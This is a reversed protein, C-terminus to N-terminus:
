YYYWEDEESASLPSDKMFKRTDGVDISPAHQEIKEKDDEEPVVAKEAPKPIREDDFSWGCPMGIALILILIMFCKFIRM